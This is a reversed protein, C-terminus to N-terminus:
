YVDLVSKRLPGGNQSSDNPRWPATTMFKSKSGPHLPPLARVQMTPQTPPPTSVEDEREDEVSMITLPNPANPNYPIFGNHSFRNPRISATTLIDGLQNMYRLRSLAYQSTTRMPPDSFMLDRHLMTSRRLSSYMILESDIDTFDTQSGISRRSTTGVRKSRSASRTQRKREWKTELSQDSPSRRIDVHISNWSCQSDTMTDNLLVDSEPHALMGNAADKRDHKPEHNVGFLRNQVWLPLRKIVKSNRHRRRGLFLCILLIAILIAITLLTCWISLLVFPTVAASAVAPEIATEDDKADHCGTGVKVTPCTHPFIVSMKSGAESAKSQSRRRNEALVINVISDSTGNVPVCKHCNAELNINISASSDVPQLRLYSPGNMTVIRSDKKVFPIPPKGSEIEFSRLYHLNILSDPHMQVVNLLRIQALVNDLGDFTHADLQVMNLNLHMTLGGTRIFLEETPQTIEKFTGPMIGGVSEKGGIIIEGRNTFLRCHVLKFRHNGTSFLPPVTKACRVMEYEPPELFCVMPCKSPREVKHAYKSTPFYDKHNNADFQAHIGALGNFIFICASIIVPTRSITKM